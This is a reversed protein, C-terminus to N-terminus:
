RGGKMSDEIPSKHNHLTDSKNINVANTIGSKADGSSLGASASVYRPLSALNIFKVPKNGKYLRYPQNLNEPNRALESVILELIFASVGLNVGNLSNCKNWYQIIEDYSYPVYGKFLIDIFKKPINADKRLIHSVIFVDNKMYKLILDKEGTEENKVYEISSPRTRFVSPFKFLVKHSKLNNGELSEYFYIHLGGFTENETGIVESLGRTIYLSPIIMEAYVCNILTRDDEIKLWKDFKATKM